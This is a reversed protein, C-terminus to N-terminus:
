ISNCYSLKQNNLFDAGPCCGHRVGLAPQNDSSKKRTHAFNGAQFIRVCVSKERKSPISLGIQDNKLELEEFFCSKKLGDRYKKM